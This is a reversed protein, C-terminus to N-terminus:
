NRCRPISTNSATREAQAVDAAPEDLASLVPDVMLADLRADREQAQRERDDPTTKKDNEDAPPTAPAAHPAPRSSEPAAITPEFREGARTASKSSAQRPRRTEWIWLGLLFALGLGVLIWRLEQM